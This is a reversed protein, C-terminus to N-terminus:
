FMVLVYGTSGALAVDAEVQDEHMLLEIFEAGLRAIGKMDKVSDLLPTDDFGPIAPIYIRFDAALLELGRTVRVGGASHFYLVPPGDGGVTYSVEGSPLQATSKEFVM